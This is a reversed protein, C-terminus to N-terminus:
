IQSGCFITVQQNNIHLFSCGFGVVQFSWATNRFSNWPNGRGKAKSGWTGFWWVRFWGHWEQVGGTYLKLMKMEVINYIWFIFYWCHPKSIPNIVQIAWSQFSIYSMPYCWFFRPLDPLLRFIESAMMM